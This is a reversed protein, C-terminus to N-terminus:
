GALLSRIQGEFADLDFPKRIYSCFGAALVAARQMLHASFLTVPTTGAAALVPATSAFVASPVTSFSDTIVLDFKLTKLLELAESQRDTAAVAYGAEELVNVVLNRLDPDDDVLLIRRKQM